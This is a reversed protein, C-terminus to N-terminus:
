ELLYLFDTIKLNEARVSENYWLKQLKDFIKDKKYWGNELNSLLKKRPSYFSSKIFSLFIEDNIKEFDKKYEFYLIMSDVKPSPSFATKPVFIKETITSKKQVFLSLVSSKKSIIRDAVEKQMLIIMEKPFNKINYLFHFLIPSTIYYPINAIIKYNEFNPIYKLVDKNIIEFDTEGIEFDKNKIRDNLVKIMFNDFEVLTLSKPKNKLIKQTLTWFGPWIEIINENKINTIEVIEDLIKEDVLFNQGLSKKAKINYRKIIEQMVFKIINKPKWELLKKFFDLLLKQCNNVFIWSSKCIKCLINKFKYMYDFKLNWTQM